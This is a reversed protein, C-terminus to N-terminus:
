VRADRRERGWIKERSNKFGSVRKELGPHILDVLVFQRTATQRYGTADWLATAAASQQRM